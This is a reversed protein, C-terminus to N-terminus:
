EIEVLPRRSRGPLANVLEGFPIRTNQSGLAYMYIINKMKAWRLQINMKKHQHQNRHKNKANKQKQKNPQQPKLYMDVRSAPSCRLRRRTIEVMRCSVFCSTADTSTRMASISFVMTLNVFVSLCVGGCTYYAYRARRLECLEYMSKGRPIFGGLKRRKILVPRHLNWLTQVYKKTVGLIYTHIYYTCLGAVPFFSFGTGECLELAM